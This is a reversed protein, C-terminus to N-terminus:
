KGSAVKLLHAKVKNLSGLGSDESEKMAKLFAYDEMEESSLISPKKQMKKLLDLFFDKEAPSSTPIIIYEM